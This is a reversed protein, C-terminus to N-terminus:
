SLSAPLGGDVANGIASPISRLTSSRAQAGDSGGSWGSAAVGDERTGYTVHHPERPDDLSTRRAAAQRVPPHHGSHMPDDGM